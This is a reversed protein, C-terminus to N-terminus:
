ALVLKRRLEALLMQLQDLQQEPSLESSKATLMTADPLLRDRVAQAEAVNEASLEHRLVLQLLGNM